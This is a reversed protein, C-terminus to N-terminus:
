INQSENRKLLELLGLDLLNAVKGNLQLALLYQDAKVAATVVDLYSLLYILVRAHGNLQCQCTYWYVM